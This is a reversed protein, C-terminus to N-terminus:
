AGLHSVECWRAQLRISEITGCGTDENRSKSNSSAEATDKSEQDLISVGQM